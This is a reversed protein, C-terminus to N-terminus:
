RSWLYGGASKSVGRCCRTISSPDIGTAKAAVYSSKYSAIHNGDLTRQHVTLGQLANVRNYADHAKDSQTGTVNNVKFTTLRLNDLTYPKYDDIRDASPRLTQIYNNNQWDIYLPEFNPQSFAWQMFEEISYNPMPHNRQKSSKRQTHYTIRAWGERTRKYNLQYDSYWKKCVLCGGNKLKENIQWRWYDNHKGNVPAPHEEECHTCYINKM